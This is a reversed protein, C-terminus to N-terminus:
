YDGNEVVELQATVIPTILANLREDSPEAGDAGKDGKAGQEGKLGAFALVFEPAGETGSKTVAVSPTGSGESVSASVSINPTIGDKGAAGDKGDKGAIGQIGQLGREGRPIGLKLTQGNEGSVLTATAEAGQVLTKAEAAVILAAEAQKTAQKVEALAAEYENITPEESNAGTSAYSDIVTLQQELAATRVIRKGSIGQFTVGVKGPAECMEWPIIYAGEVVAGLAPSIPARDNRYFTCVVTLGNWEEDFDVTISDSNVTGKVLTFAECFAIRHKVTVAHNIIAM